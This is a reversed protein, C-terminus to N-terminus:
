TGLNGMGDNGRAYINRADPSTANLYTSASPNGFTNGALFVGNTFGGGFDIVSIGTLFANGTVSLGKWRPNPIISPNIDLWVTGGIVDNSDGFWNGSWNHGECLAGGTRTEKYARTLPRYITAGGDWVGLRTGEFVCGTVNLGEDVNSIATPTMLFVCENSFTVSNCFDDVPNQLGLFGVTALGFQCADFTTNHSSRGCVLSAASYATEIGQFACDRYAIMATDGGGLVRYHDILHGTFTPSNYSFHIGEFTLGNSSGVSFASTSGSGTYRLMTAGCNNYAAKAGEGYFKTAFLNTALIQGNYDIVGRPLYVRLGAATAPGAIKPIDSILANLAATNAAASSAPGVGYDRADIEDKATGSGGGGGGGGGPITISKTAGTGTVTVGAGLFNLTTAATALAVGEDQVTIPPSAEGAVEVIAAQVNTAAITGAPTFSVASAAHAATPDAEHTDILDIGDEIHTLRAASVPTAPDNDTWTQKDYTM